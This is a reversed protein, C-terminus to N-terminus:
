TNQQQKLERERIEKNFDDGFLKIYETYQKKIPEKKRGQSREDYNVIQVSSPKNPDIQCLKYERETGGSFLDHHEFKEMSIIGVNGLVINHALDISENHCSRADGYSSLEIISCKKKTDPDIYNIKIQM